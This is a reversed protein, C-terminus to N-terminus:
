SQGGHRGKEADWGEADRVSVASVPVQPPSREVLPSAPRLCLEDEPGLVRRRLRRARSSVRLPTVTRTVGLPGM